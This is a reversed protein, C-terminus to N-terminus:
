CLFHLLFCRRWPCPLVSVQMEPGDDTDMRVDFGFQQNRSAAAAAAAQGVQGLSQVASSQRYMIDAAM